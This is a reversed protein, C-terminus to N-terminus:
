VFSLGCLLMLVLFGTVLAEEWGFDRFSRKM